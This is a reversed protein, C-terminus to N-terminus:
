TFIELKKTFTCSVHGLFLQRLPHPYGSLGHGFPLHPNGMTLSVVGLIVFGRKFMAEFCFVPHLLSIYGADPIKNGSFKIKVCDKLM